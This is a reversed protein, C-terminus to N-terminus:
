FAQGIRLASCSKTRAPTLVARKRFWIALTVDLYRTVTGWSSLPFSGYGALRRFRRPGLRRLSERREEACVPPAPLDLTAAGDTRGLKRVAGCANLPADSAAEERCPRCLSFREPRPRERQCSGEPRDNRKASFCVIAVSTGLRPREFVRNAQRLLRYNLENRRYSAGDTAVDDKFTDISSTQRSCRTM